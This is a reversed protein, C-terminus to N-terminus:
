QSECCENQKVHSDKRQGRPTQQSPGKQRKAGIGEEARQGRESKAM